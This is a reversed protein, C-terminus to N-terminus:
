FIGSLFHGPLISTVVPLARAKLLIKSQTDSSLFIVIIIVRVDDNELKMYDGHRYTPPAQPQYDTVMAEPTAVQAFQPQFGTTMAGSTAIQAFQPQNGVTGSVPVMVMQPQGGQPGPTVTQVPVMGSGGQMPVAVPAGGPYQAIAYGSNPPYM